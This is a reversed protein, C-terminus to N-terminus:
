FNLEMGVMINRGPMAYWQKPDKNPMVGWIIQTQEAYYEDFLNNVRMFLKTHKDPKYNLGLNWVWYNSTPWGAPNFYKGARGLFRRGNLGVDWKDKTYEIGVNTTYKPLYGRMVGSVAGPSGEDTGTVADLNIKSFGLYTQWGGQFRKDIKVDWGSSKEDYNAYKNFGQTFGLANKSDRNFYHTSLVTDKDFTHTYGLEYNHGTEAQLKAGNYADGGAWLQWITPMVFYDNYAAYMKNNKDFNHGLTLSKSTHPDIHQLGSTVKDRRMGWNLNWKNDFTWEHSFFGAKIPFDMVGSETRTEEYGLSVTHNKDFTKTIQDRFSKTTYAHTFFNILGYDWYKDAKHDYNNYRYSFNNYTTDNITQNYSISWERTNYKGICDQAYIWDYFSFDNNQENWNVSVSAMNSIKADLKLGKNHYDTSGQTRVGRGDRTDGQRYQEGYVRYRFNENGGENAFKYQRQDFFGGAKSMTTKNEKAKKTIINIVGGKADSGFRVANAGRLVEIRDINSMNTAMSLEALNGMGSASSRVGDVLVIVDDTGNLRISNLNYGQLGYNLFDLGPVTRLAEEVTTYHMQEIQKQDIVTINANEKYISRPDTIRRATVVTEDLNFYLVEEEKNEEAIAPTVGACLIGLTIVSALCWRRKCSRKVVM